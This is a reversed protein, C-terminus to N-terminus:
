QGYTMGWQDGIVHAITSISTKPPDVMAWAAADPVAGEPPFFDGDRENLM